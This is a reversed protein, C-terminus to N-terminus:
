VSKKCLSRVYKVLERIQQESLVGGWAPMVTSRGVGQGGGSIIKFLTEDSEKKMVACDTFNAPKPFLGSASPGDGKGEAGHCTSCLELFMVSASDAAPLVEPHLLAGATLVGFLIVIPRIM